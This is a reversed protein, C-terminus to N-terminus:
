QVKRMYPAFKETYEWMGDHWFLVCTNLKATLATETAYANMDERDTAEFVQEVQAATMHIGRVLVTNRNKWRRADRDHLEKNYTPEPSAPLIVTEGASAIVKYPMCQITKIPHIPKYAQTCLASMAKTIVLAKPEISKIRREHRRLPFLIMLFLATALCATAREKNM